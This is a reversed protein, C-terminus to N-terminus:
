RNAGFSGTFRSLGSGKLDFVGGLEDANPGYFRGKAPGRINTNTIFLNGDFSSSGSNYSLRGRLDLGIYRLFSVGDESLITNSSYFDLTRRGFDVLVRLDAAALWWEGLEDVAIGGLGGYFNASASSPISAPNTRVGVSIAGFRGSGTNIGNAWIGFTNYNHNMIAPDSAFGIKTLDNSRVLTLNSTIGQGRGIFDGNDKNWSVLSGISLRELCILNTGCPNYTASVRASDSYSVSNIQTVRNTNLNAEYSGDYSIGQFATTGQQLENWSKFQAGSSPTPSVGGGGGGGGGGGCAVLLFPLLILTYINIKIIM